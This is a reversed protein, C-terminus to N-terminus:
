PLLRFLIDALRNPQSALSSLGETHDSCDGGFPAAGEAGQRRSFWSCWGCPECCVGQGGGRALTESPAQPLELEVNSFGRTTSDERTTAPMEWMRAGERCAGSEVMFAIADDKDAGPPSPRLM